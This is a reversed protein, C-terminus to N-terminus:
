KNQPNEHPTREDNRDIVRPELQQVAQFDGLTISGPPQAVPTPVTRNTFLWVALIVVAAIGLPVPVRISGTLFWRWPSEPKLPIRGRLNAPAGPAAWQSLMEKLEKDNLPEM